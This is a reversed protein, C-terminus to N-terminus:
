ATGAWYGGLARVIHPRDHVYEPDDRLLLLFERVVQRQAADLASFYREENATQTLCFAMGCGYDGQLEATMFAPLHFRMGEPDFFSLSSACRELDEAPIRRWDDKEDRERYAARTTADAYDDLGQAERLGIGEGLAVGAFVEAIRGVLLDARKGREVAERAEALAEAEFGRSRLEAFESESLRRM